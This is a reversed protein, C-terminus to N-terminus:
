PRVGNNDADPKEMARIIEQAEAEAAHQQGAHPDPILDRMVAVRKIIESVAQALLLTFCLPVLFKAPWVPLGGANSSQENIKFSAEFFPWGTVVMVLSFPLLFFIHGLLEIWNRAAKPLANNLIDIRIHENAILTWAACLLFVAAFLYWQLELWANSSVDFTKRVIANASSVLIAALIAWAVIKGIWINLADIARSLRLLGTM